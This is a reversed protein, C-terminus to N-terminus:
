GQRCLAETSMRDITQHKVIQDPGGVAGDCPGAGWSICVNATCPCGWQRRWGHLPVKPVGMAPSMCGGEQGARPAPRQQALLTAETDHPAADGSSLQEM